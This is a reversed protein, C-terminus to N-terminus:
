NLLKVFDLEFSLHTLTIDLPSFLFVTAFKDKPFYM